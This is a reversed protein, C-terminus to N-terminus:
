QELHSPTAPGTSAPAVVVPVRNAIDTGPNDIVEDSLQLGRGVAVRLGNDQGVEISKLQAHGNKVVYVHTKGDRSRGVLCSSPISLQDIGKDLIISVRGYMGNRILGKPNALDIEVRMLRTDPDESEAVRSIMAPFAQNPLADIEVTAQDGPDCYPVDRDPVQVVVRFKDTRQVTLLPVRNGSDTAALVFDNVFLSRQTVVGDFPAIITSYGVLVQAKELQARAVQIEAEAEMVDAKAQEIKAETAAVQAKSTLIAAEAALHAELAADRQETKEDVLREDISNRAFLDKMRALQQERFRLAAATSKATAEAQKVGALAAQKEAQATAIRARMQSVRAKGQEIEANSRLIQKELEPVAVKILLKAKKVRDGIDVTQKELYGSVASYLQVSEYAQVTGPQTSIRQMGGKVPHVVEVRIPEDPAADADHQEATSAEGSERADASNPALDRLFLHRGGLVLLIAVLGSISWFKWDIWRRRRVM